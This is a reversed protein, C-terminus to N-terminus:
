TRSCSTSEASSRRAAPRSSSARRAAPCSWRAPSRWASATESRRTTPSRMPARRRRCRSALSRRRKPACTRRRSSGCTPRFRTARSSSCSTGRFSSSRPFCARRAAACRDAGRRLAHQPDFGAGERGQGGPHVGLARQSGGRRLHDGRRGVPEADAQHVRRRSPRLRSHQQVPRPVAHVPGAEQGGAPPEARVEPAPDLGRRRRPRERNTALRKVVEDASMAHWAAIEGAAEANAAAGM